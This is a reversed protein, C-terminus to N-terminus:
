QFTVGPFDQALRHTSEDTIRPGRFGLIKLNPLASLKRIGSETFDNDWLYVERLSDIKSLTDLSQDTLRNSNLNLNGRGEPTNRYLYLTKLNPLRSLYGVAEDTISCYALNVEEVATLRSLVAVDADDGTRLRVRTPQGSSDFQIEAGVTRLHALAFQRQLDVSWCIAFAAVTTAILLHTITFRPRM